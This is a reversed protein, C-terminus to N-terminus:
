DVVFIISKITPFKRYYYNLLMSGNNLKTIFLIDLKYFHLM